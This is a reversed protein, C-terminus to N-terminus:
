LHNLAPGADLVISWHYALMPDADRTQQPAVYLIVLREGLAPDNNAWRRHDINAWRRLRHALMPLMPCQTFMEHNAETDCFFSIIKFSLKGTGAIYNSIITSKIAKM